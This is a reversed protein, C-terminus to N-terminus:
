VLVVFLLDIVLDFGLSCCCEVILFFWREFFQVGLYWVDFYVYLFGEVHMCDVIVWLVVDCLVLDVLEYVVVMFWEGVGDVLVVGEGCVVESIFL